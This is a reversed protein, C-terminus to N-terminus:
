CARTAVRCWSWSHPWPSSPRAPAWTSWRCCATCRCRGPWTPRSRTSSVGSCADTLEYPLSALFTRQVGPAPGEDDAVVHSIGSASRELDAKRQVLALQLRLLEHVCRATPPGRGHPGDLGPRPHGRVGRERRILDLRDLVDGPVPDAIGRVACRRLVQAVWDALDWTSLRSKETLPYIAVVRGTRNGIMDVVPNTMQRVGNFSEVKGFM